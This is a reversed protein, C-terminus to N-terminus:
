QAGADDRELTLVGFRAQKGVILRDGEAALGRAGLGLRHQKFCQPKLFHLATTAGQAGPRKHQGVPVGFRPRVSGCRRPRLHRVCKRPQCLGGLASGLGVKGTDCGFVGNRRGSVKEFQEGFEVIPFPGSRRLGRQRRAARGRGTHGRGKGEHLRFGFSGDGPQRGIRGTPVTNIFSREQLGDKDCLEAAVKGTRDEGVYRDREIGSVTM